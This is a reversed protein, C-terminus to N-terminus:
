LVGVPTDHRVSAARLRGLERPKPRGERHRWGGRTRAQTRRDRAAQRCHCLGHRNSGSRPLAHALDGADVQGRRGAAPNPALSTTRPVPPVDAAALWWSKSASGLRNPQRGDAQTVSEGGGLAIAARRRHGGSSAGGSSRHDPEGVPIRAPRSTRAGGCRYPVAETRSHRPGVIPQRGTVL